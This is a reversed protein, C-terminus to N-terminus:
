YAIRRMEKFSLPQPLSGAVGELKEVDEWSTPTTNVSAIGLHRGQTPSVIALEQDDTTLVIVRNDRSVEEAVRLLDSINSVNIHKQQREQAM